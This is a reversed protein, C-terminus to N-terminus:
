IRNFSFILFIYLLIILAFIKNGYKSFITPQIERIEELDIYGSEGYDVQKEIIGLPNIIAATGNNASRVLYKGSEISRLISHAFHQNLGVSKGFWGDESINVLYDFNNDKFLKGTYIIEYCILPLIKLSFNNKSLNIIERKRGKSYSQYNNTINTMGIKRLLNEFPLFEGFPVLKNKNYYDVLNLQNDYISFSNYIKLDSVDSYNNNIGLGILHNENFNDEFLYKYNKLEDQSLSPIVGEPWLFFIKKNSYPKSIDILDRIIISPEFSNYFRDLTINSGIVRIIFDNTKKEINYFKKEKIDGYVFLFIPLTLFIMGVIIEKFKNKLIILAPSIFLSICFINLGYTGTISIIRLFELQKSFTYIILNWPFGTFIYGRLFEVIGFILPFLFFLVLVKKKKFFSFIYVAFGYFLALFAPILIFSVPILFKFNEDFTLSINIWYLNTLFYGFGYSWGYIFFIFKKLKEDQKVLFFFFLSFTVFNILFYNFPPLSLSSFAGLLILYLLKLNFYSKM